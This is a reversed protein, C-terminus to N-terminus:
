LKSRIGELYKVQAQSPSSDTPEYIFHFGLLVYLSYRVFKAMSLRGDLKLKLRCIDEHTPRPRPNIRFGLM